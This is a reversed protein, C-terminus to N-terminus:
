NLVSEVKKCFRRATWVYHMEVKMTPVSNGDIIRITTTMEVREVRASVWQLHDTRTMQDPKSTVDM